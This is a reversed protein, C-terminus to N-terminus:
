SYWQLLLFLEEVGNSLKTSNMMPMPQTVWIRTASSMLAQRTRLINKTAIKM